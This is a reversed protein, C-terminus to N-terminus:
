PREIVPEPRPDRLQMVARNHWEGAQSESALFSWLSRAVSSHGNRLLAAGLYYATKFYEVEDIYTLLLQNRNIEEVLASLDTFSFDFKRRRIEEIIITNQILFAFMLHPQAGARGRVVYYFGLLRHAEEVAGNDYRYMELLRTIGNEQLVRTMGTRAFSASAQAYSLTTNANIRNADAVGANSWLTDLEAIISLLIREMENYEQRIGHIGAMKYLISTGFGPNELSARMSYAKQYQSLALTLEGQIRFIEGIWYEAEPFNKLKDFAGLAALASNNFNEKPVRFYLEELAASAATFYRDYSYREVRELSDGIRRVENLSLFNIFNRELQEYMARRDRRADEFLILANGYEGSRFRQKGYELSLWWPIATQASLLRPAFVPTLFSFLIILVLIKNLKM